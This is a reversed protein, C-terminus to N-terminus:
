ERGANSIEQVAITGDEVVIREGPGTRIERATRRGDLLALRQDTPSSCDATKQADSESPRDGGTTPIAQLSSREGEPSSQREGIWVEARRSAGELEQLRQAQDERYDLLHWLAMFASGGMGAMLAFMLVPFKWNVVLAWLWVGAFITLLGVGHRVALPIDMETRGFLYHEATLILAVLLAAALTAWGAVPPLKSISAIQELM